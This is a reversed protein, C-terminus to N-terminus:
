TATYRTLVGFWGMINFRAHLLIVKHTLLDVCMQVSM